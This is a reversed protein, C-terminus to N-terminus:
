HHAPQLGADRAAKAQQLKLVLRLAGDHQRWREEVSLALNTDILDLDIGARRAEEFIQENRDVGAFLGNQPAVAM